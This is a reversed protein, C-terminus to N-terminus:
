LTFCLSYDREHVRIKTKLVLLFLTPLSTLGYLISMLNVRLKALFNIEVCFQKMISVTSLYFWHIPKQNRYNQTKRDM